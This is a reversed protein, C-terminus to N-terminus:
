IVAEAASGAENQSLSKKIVEDARARLGLYIINEVIERNYLLRLGGAIEGLRALDLTIAMNLAEPEEARLLLPNYAGHKLDKEFDDIADITYIYRGLHYGFERLIRSMEPQTKAAGDFLLALRGEIDPAGTFDLLEAMMHGTPDAARDLSETEAAELARQENACEMCAWAVDGLRRAARRGAYRLALEAAFTGIGKLANGSDKDAKRDKLSLWGLLVMVDAAYEIGSTAAAESRKKLPNNFCRFTTFEPTEPEGSLADALMALFVSDYSLMLRPLDGYRRKVAHCIACYYANYVEYERVKLESKLPALYGFM